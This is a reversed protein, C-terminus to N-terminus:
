SAANYDIAACAEGPKFKGNSRLSATLSTCVNAPIGPLSIEYTTGSKGTVTVSGGWPLNLVSSSSVPLNSNSLGTYGGNGQAYTDAAASIAQIQQLMSNSQQSVTASQYYRVSMIIIMAAVALVLMIELLTVGLMSIQSKKM